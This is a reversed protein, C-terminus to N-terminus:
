IAEAAEPFGASVLAERDAERQREAALAAVLAALKYADGKWQPFDAVLALFEKDM